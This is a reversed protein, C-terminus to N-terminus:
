SRDGAQSGARMMVLYADELTPIVPIFGEPAQGQPEYIRVRNRGEVLIAQTVCRSTHLAELGATTTEGEFIMGEIASRARTPTTEAV